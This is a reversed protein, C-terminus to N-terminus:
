FCGKPPAGSFVLYSNSPEPRTPPTSTHAAFTVALFADMTPAHKRERRLFTWLQKIGKGGNRDTDAADGGERDVGRGYGNAAGLGSEQPPCSRLATKRILFIFVVGGSRSGARLAIMGVVTTTSTGNWYETCFCSRSAGGDEAQRKRFRGGPRESKSSSRFKLMRYGIGKGSRARGARVFKFSFHFAGATCAEYSHATQRRHADVVAFLSRRGEAWRFDSKQQIARV